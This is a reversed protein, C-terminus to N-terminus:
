RSLCTVTILHLLDVSFVTYSLLSQVFVVFVSELLDESADLDAHEFTM